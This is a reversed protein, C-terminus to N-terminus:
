RQAAIVERLIANLFEPRELPVYHGCEPVVHLRGHRASAAQAASVAPGRAGDEAGTVVAVTGHFATLVSERGPRSHFATVGREVDRPSQRLATRRAGDVVRTDASRSFLPGWYRDWAEAMGKTRLMAIAEAHLAPEPRHGAKAGILVLAAVRGPAAAAVELACSGGVSCGVVILRDGQVLNLVAGAWAEVSDGFGYLTPAHTAGPLLDMQRAWMSGDLPLAHLLLLEPRRRAFM